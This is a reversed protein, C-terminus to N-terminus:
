QFKRGGSSSFAQEREVALDGVLRQADALGEADLAFLQERGVVVVVRQLIEVLGVFPVLRRQLCQVQLVLLQEGGVGRKGAPEVGERPADEAAALM